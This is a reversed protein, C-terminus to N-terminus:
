VVDDVRWEAGALVRPLTVVRLGLVVDDPRVPADEVQVLLALISLLGPQRVLVDGHM